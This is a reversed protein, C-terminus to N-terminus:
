DDEDSSESSESSCDVQRAVQEEDSSSSPVFCDLCPCKTNEFSVVISPDSGTTYAFCPPKDIEKTTTTKKGRAGPTVDCTGCSGFFNM